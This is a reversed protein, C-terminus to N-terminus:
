AKGERSLLADIVAALSAQVAAQSEDSLQEARCATARIGHKDSVAAWPDVPEPEKRARPLRRLELLVTQLARELAPAAEATLFGTPVGFFKEISFAHRLGPKGTGNALPVLGQHSAGIATGLDRLSYAKGDSPRLRTERLFTFRQSVREGLELEEVRRGELLAVVTHRPIGTEYSLRPVDLVEDRSLGAEDALTHIATLSEALAAHADSM